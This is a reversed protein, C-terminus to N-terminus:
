KKNGEELSDIEQLWGNLMSVFAAKNADITKGGRKNWLAIAKVETKASIQVVHQKDFQECQIYTAYNTQWMNAPANCFPCPKLNDNRM